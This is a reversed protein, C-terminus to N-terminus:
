RINQQTGADRDRLESPAQLFVRIDPAAAMCQLSDQHQPACARSAIRRCRGAGKGEAHCLEATAQGPQRHLPWALWRRGVLPQEAAGIVAADAAVAAGAPSGDLGARPRACSIARLMAAATEMHRAISVLSAWPAVGRWGSSASTLLIAAFRCSGAACARAGVWRQLRKVLPQM